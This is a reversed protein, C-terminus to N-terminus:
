PRLISRKGNPQEEEDDWFAPFINTPFANSEPGLRRVPLLATLLPPKEKAGCHFVGVEAGYRIHLHCKPCCFGLGASKGSITRAKYWHPWEKQLPFFLGSM